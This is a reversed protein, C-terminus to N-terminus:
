GWTSLERSVHEIVPALSEATVSPATVSPATASPPALTVTGTKMPRRVASTFARARGLDGSNAGTFIVTVPPAPRMRLRGILNAEHQLVPSGGFLWPVPMRRARHTVSGGPSTVASDTAEPVGPPVQYAAAPAAAVAFRDSHTMVLMVACYGGSSDGLLGWGAPGGPVRYAAQLVAPLDQSFFAGAQPGGPVDLCAQDGAGVTAPLMVYVAPAARGAAIERYATLALKVAPTGGGGSAGGGGVGSGAAGDGTVSGLRNQATAPGAPAINDSIVVIVAFQRGAQAAATYQPPLYVYGNASLGSREGYIHVRQLEGADQGGSGAGGRAGGRAGGGGAGGGDTRALRQTSLVRVFGAEPPQAPRGAQPAGGRLPGPPGSQSGAAGGGTVPPSATQGPAAQVVGTTTSTGLLEAWSAYFGFVRNVALFILFTVAVNTALLLGFRALVHRAGPQAARRWMVFTVAILGGSAVAAAAILVGGTLALASM